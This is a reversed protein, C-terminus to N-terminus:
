KADSMKVTDHTKEGALLMINQLGNNRLLNGTTRM